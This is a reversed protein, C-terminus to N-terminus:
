CSNYTYLLDGHSIVNTTPMVVAESQSSEGMMCTQPLLSPEEQEEIEAVGPGQVVNGLDHESCDEKLKLVPHNPHTDVEAQLVGLNAVRGQYYLSIKKLRPLHKIGTIGSELTVYNFALKEMQPLAGKQFKVERLDVPSTICLKRLNLSAEERFVLKKGYYAAAGLNLLMLKPLRGLMETVQDEKLYSWELHIKVLHKMSGVWEPMKGGLDGLLKLKNLLPPPSSVNHLWELSGNYDVDLSLSRLSSLKEIAAGLYLIKRKQEAFRGRGVMSLKRLQILDGLEKIAKKSTQKIDVVELIQLEKLNGIGRPIRVGETESWRSSYAMHIEATLEARHDADVSPTCLMPLCLTHMLCKMPEDKDFYDYLKWRSCRLSRLCHLETIGTPLAAIYSKRIDLNQLGRLRQISKPLAYIHSPGEFDVYKLHCLLGINNIDKQRIKFLTNKLDLARLMRMNTSCVSPSPETPREGFMTLSRVHSWDMGINQCKSGHYAVHRFNGELISAESDGLLHVFNEDRSISVMVDRIIDHVRCSKVIGEINVKSPQIMNRNILENFYGIGVDGVYVGGSATVYGEAIWRDVLRRRKIEFDEPFISLYLFCSKLHSPLHNYSLTVMRRMAELSPNTELESPIQEYISEWMEVVKTALLGGITLIALPLGGCKNVIKSIVNRMREDSETEKHTKGIKKLLLNTAQDIQLHKLHYILSKSACEQALGIDRTTVIIRSGKINSSPFAIDKIWGWVDITWLDDLVILYRKEQLMERLYSALDDVQVMKGELEKLCKKLEENGFLQMIMDKLMEIKSFTQSVTIWARYSFNNVIDEKSEYTKRALTTKGLGGMGVVFVVKAAGGKTKVDMLEILEGKPKSFGVLEAEDVNSASHNRIDEMHSDVEDIADSADMKILNYRTNRASVEEVRTKLDRIQIAIRHRDKLKMLQWSLSQSGVHVMFEGLGDEINYSLDRVQKAWVKLLVDKKKMKEAVELFAQMTELEDKIFWIDKRVGILLGMEAAAASTAMSIAGGLMSRAMSLVTEAM